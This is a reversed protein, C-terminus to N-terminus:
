SFVYVLHPVGGACGGGAGGGGGYVFDGAWWGEFRLVGVGMAMHRGPKGRSIGGRPHPHHRLRRDGAQRILAHHQNGLRQSPPQLDTNNVCLKAQDFGVGVLCM